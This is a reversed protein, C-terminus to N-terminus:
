EEIVVLAIGVVPLGLAAPALRAVHGPKRFVASVDLFNGEVEVFEDAGQRRAGDEDVRWQAIRIELGAAHVFNHLCGRCDVSQVAGILIQDDFMRVAFM